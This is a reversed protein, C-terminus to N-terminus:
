PRLLLNPLRHRNVEVTVLYGSSALPRINRYFVNELRQSTSMTWSSTSTDKSSLQDDRKSLKKFSPCHCTEELCLTNGGAIKPASRAYCVSKTSFCTTVHQRKDQNLSDYIAFPPAVLCCFLAVLYFRSLCFRRM